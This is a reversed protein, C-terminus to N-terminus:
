EADSTGVVVLHRMFSTDLTVRLGSDQMTEVVTSKALRIKDYSGVRQTWGDGTREHLLDTVRVTERDYELFCTLIRQEDSKVPLFRDTGTLPTFYDRFSLALKGGPALGDACDRIFRQAEAESDLHTLTDGWCLILEPPPDTHQRVNRIDDEIVRIDYEGRYTRLEDLLQWSFDVARVSFGLKALSVAQLGHGAGLDLALGNGRPLLKNERFFTEHATQKEDFDGVMWSYFNGLHQDYHEKATMFITFPQPLASDYSLLLGFKMVFRVVKTGRLFGSYREDIIM